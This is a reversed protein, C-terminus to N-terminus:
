KWLLGLSPLSVTFFVYAGLVLFLLSFGVALGAGFEILIEMSRRPGVARSLTFKIILAVVSTFWTEWWSYTMIGLPHLIYSLTPFRSTIFYCVLVFLAVALRGVAVTSVPLQGSLWSTTYVGTNLAGSTPNWWFMDMSSQSTNSIGVHSNFWADFVFAFPALLVLTVLMYTLLRKLDAKTDAGIYYVEFLNPASYYGNSAFPGVCAGLSIPMYGTVAANVSSTPATTPLLGLGSSIPWVYRWVEPGVCDAGGAFLYAYMYTAGFLELTTVLWFLTVFIPDAGAVVWIMIFLIVGVIGLSLLTRASMGNIEYDEKFSLFARKIRNKTLFLTVFGLGLAIASIDFFTLPIPWSTWVDAGPALIGARTALGPYLLDLLFWWFLQTTIIEYPVLVFIFIGAMDLMTGTAQANPFISQITSSIGPLFQGINYKGYGGGIFGFIPIAPVIQALVFPMNIILGILVFIWFIKHQRINFFLDGFKNPDETYVTNIVYRTPVTLPFIIHQTEYFEPGLFLFTLSLSMLAISIFILSWSIIPGIYASWIPEGGGNFYRASAVPDFCVLWSPLLGKLYTSAEPPWVGMSLSPSLTSTISDIFNVDGTGMLYYQKSTVVGLIFIIAVLLTKDIKINMKKGLYAVILLIYIWPLWAGNITWYKAGSMVRTVYAWVFVLWSIVVLIVLHSIPIAKKVVEEKKTESM